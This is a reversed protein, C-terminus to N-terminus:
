TIAASIRRLKNNSFYTAMISNNKNKQCGSNKILKLTNTLYLNMDKQELNVCNVIVQLCRNAFM